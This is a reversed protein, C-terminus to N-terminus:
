IENKIGCEHNCTALRGSKFDPQQWSQEVRDFWEMCDKLPRELANNNSILTRTQANAAQLYHNQDTESNLYTKPNMGLWCCPYVEGESTIYISKDAKAKCSIPNIPINLFYGAQYFPIKSEARASYITQFDTVAPSGIVHLLKGQNNFVPSQDRGHNILEFHTFKMQQSLQRATEIQHRNHDFEIMKWWARGGAAIFTKANNLVTNYCTNKRYLSHTDELGDICFFVTTRLQAMRTWFKENRAAGNTSVNIRCDFNHERFYAIIDITEPNMVMDGFNGNINIETLRSLLAPEFITQVDALTLNRETYGSNYSYGHLNRPCLPCEANCLSSLELDIRRIDEIAYMM